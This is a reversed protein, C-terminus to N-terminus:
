RVECNRVWPSNYIFDPTIKVRATFGPRPAAETGANQLDTIDVSVGLSAALLSGLFRDGGGGGQARFSAMGFSSFWTGPLTAHQAETYEMKWEVDAQAKKLRGTIHLKTPCIDTKRAVSRYHAANRDQSSLIAVSAQPLWNVKVDWSKQTVHFLGAGPNKQATAKPQAGATQGADAGALYRAIFADMDMGGSASWARYQALLDAFGHGRRAMLELFRPWDLGQRRLAQVWAGQSWGNLYFFSVLDEELTDEDGAYPHDGVEEYFDVYERVTAFGSQRWDGYLAGVDTEYAGIEAAIDAGDDRHAAIGQWLQRYFVRLEDLRAANAEPSYGSELPLAVYVSALPPRRPGLKAQGEGAAPEGDAVLDGDATVGHVLYHSEETSGDELTASFTLVEGPGFLPADGGSGGGCAALALAMPLALPALIGRRTMYTNM